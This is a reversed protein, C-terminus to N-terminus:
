LVGLAVAIAVGVVLGAVIGALGGLILGLGIGAVSRLCGANQPATYGEGDKAAM